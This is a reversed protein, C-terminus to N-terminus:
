SWIRSLFGCILKSLQSGHQGATLIHAANSCPLAHGATFLPLLVRWVRDRLIQESVVVSASFDLPLLWMFLLHLEKKGMNGGCALM